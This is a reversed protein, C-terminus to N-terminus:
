PGDVTNEQAAVRALADGTLGTHLVVSGGAAWRALVEPAALRPGLLVRGGTRAQVALLSAPGPSPLVDPMGSVESGYDVGGPPLTAAPRPLAAAGVVVVVSGTTPGAAGEAVVHVASDDSVEDPARDGTAPWATTGDDHVSGGLFWTALWFVPARWDPGLSVRVQSGPEVDGEEVLLHATKAVWRVLDRGTLEVRNGGTSYWTLRPRPDGGLDDLLRAVDVRSPGSATASSPPGIQM